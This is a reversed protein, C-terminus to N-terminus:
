KQQQQQKLLMKEQLARFRAEAEELDAAEKADQSLVKVRASIDDDLQKLAALVAKREARLGKLEEDDPFEETTAPTHRAAAGAAAATGRPPHGSGRQHRPASAAGAAAGAAAAGRPPHGSGRQHRPAPAPAPAPPSSAAGDQPPHQIPRPPKSRARQAIDLLCAPIPAGKLKQGLWNKVNGQTWGLRDGTTLHAIAWPIFEPDDTSPASPASPASPDTHRVRPVRPVRPKRDPRHTTDPESSDCHASVDPDPSSPRSSAAPDASASAM